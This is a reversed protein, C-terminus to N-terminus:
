QTMEELEQGFDLMKKLVFDKNSMLRPKDEGDVKVVCAGTPLVEEVTGDNAGGSFIVVRDGVAATSYRRLLTEAESAVEDTVEGGFGKLMSVQELFRRTASVTEERDM